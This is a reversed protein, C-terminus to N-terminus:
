KKKPVPVAGKKARYRANLGNVIDATIDLGKNGVWIQGEDQISFIYDFNAAKNYEQLFNKLESSIEQLAKLQLEDLRDQSRSQLDQIHAQLDQYEKQDAAIEAQTSYTHDKSALQQARQEAKQLEQMFNSQMKQGEGRVRESSEKVLEYQNKLTDMFFFAIRGSKL